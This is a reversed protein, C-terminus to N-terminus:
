EKDKGTRWPLEQAIRTVEEEEGPQRAHFVEEVPTAREAGDGNNNKEKTNKIPLRSGILASGQKRDTRFGVEESDDIPYLVRYINHAPMTNSLKKEIMGKDVLESTWERISRDTTCLDDAM